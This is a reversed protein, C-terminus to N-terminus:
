QVDEMPLHLSFTSGKGLTSQVEVHGGHAKTVHSVLALGLGTGPISQTEPTLVRYFDQFIKAQEEPAVGLGSDRVHIVAHGNRRELRLDIARSDGSYKMANTLLNLIAQHLADADAKILPMSDELELRLQFGEQALPYELARIATHVVEPLSTPRLQYTKKGQEIKSFDLVNNLLRTLRESENIITDLYEAEMQPNGSRGLRLTEAFMRIATLPTKLEHSVSSVFQSRMEAVRAERQVDRWLLYAGFSTICIVLVLAAFYFSRQLSWPGPGAQDSPAFVLQLGRLGEGLSMAKPDDKMTLHYSGTPNDQAGDSHLNTFVQDASAVIIVQRSSSLEHALTVLWIEKGYAVWAPKSSSLQPSAPSELRLSHFDKRLEEAQELNGVRESIEQLLEKGANSTKQDPAAESIKTALERLFYAQAPPLWRNSNLEVRLRDIVAAHELGNDLLQAAAYLSFSIGQEDVLDTPLALLSKYQSIAENQKQLKMLARALLLRAYAVQTPAHATNMAQQYSEVARAFQRARIEESEGRAIRNAFGPEALLTQSEEVASIRDWPLILQNQDLYGLFILEPDEAAKSQTALASLQRVKLRELRTLAERGIDTALRRQEDAVRKELLEREQMIMRLGLGLLVVAPIVVAVLFLIVQRRQRRQSMPKRESIRASM